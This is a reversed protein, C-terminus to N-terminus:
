ARPEVTGSLRRLGARASRAARLLPEPAHERILKRFGDGEAGTAEPAPAEVNEEYWRRYSPVAGHDDFPNPFHAM